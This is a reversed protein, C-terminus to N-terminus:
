PVRLNMVRNVVARLKGRDQALDISHSLYFIFDLELLSHGMGSGFGVGGWCFDVAVIRCWGARGVEKGASMTCSVVDNFLWFLSLSPYFRRRAVATLV